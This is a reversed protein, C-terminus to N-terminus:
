RALEATTDIIPTQSHLVVDIYRQPDLLGATAQESLDILLSPALGILLLLVSLGIVPALMVAPWAGPHAPKSIEGQQPAEKWFAEMWIRMLPIFSLLSAVIVAAIVIWAGQELSAKLVLVKAWFGSLPPIGILAFAAFLFLIAFPAQQRYLGGLKALDYSGGTRKILGVIQFLTAKVLIGHVMYFLSAVMALKSGLGLGLLMFGISGIVHFSLIRRMDSHTMAGLVGVLMTLLATTLFVHELVNSEISFILTFTRVLAYVGVKTMLAAFIAAVSIPLTHYAAPLWFFLPFVAAKIGFAILFLVAIVNVLGQNEVEALRGNLDAMNLTGTMGYLLGIAALLLVTSILNIAVYKVAGDIQLRTGGLVMLAFSSILMVEFWVYLNFLDGTLFAGVVGTLLMQLFTDFGGKSRANDIDGLAYLTVAIGVIGTVLMMMASLHDAVLTIGMPSKWGGMQASIPGQEIVQLLLLAAFITLIVAGIVSVIGKIRKSSPCLFAIAATIMPTILCAILLTNM